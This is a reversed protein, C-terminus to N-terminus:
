AEIRTDLIVQQLFLKKSRFAIFGRTPPVLITFRVLRLPNMSRSRAVASFVSAITAATFVAILVNMPM